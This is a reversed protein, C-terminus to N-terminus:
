HTIEGIQLNILYNALEGFKTDVEGLTLLLETIKDFAAQGVVLDIENAM